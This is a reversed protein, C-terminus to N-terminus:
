RRQFLTLRVGEPGLGTLSDMYIIYCTNAFGEAVYKFVQKEGPMYVSTPLLCNSLALLAHFFCTLHQMTGDPNVNVTRTMYM